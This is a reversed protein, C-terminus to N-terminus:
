ASSPMRSLLGDRPSPSTYLLCPAPDLQRPGSDCTPPRHGTRSASIRVQNAERTAFTTGESFALCDFITCTLPGFAGFHSRLIRTIAPAGVWCALLQSGSAFNCSDRTFLLNEPLAALSARHSCSVRTIPVRHGLPLFGKYINHFGSPTVRM